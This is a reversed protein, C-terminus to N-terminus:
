QGPCTVVRGSAQGLGANRASHSAATPSCFVVRKRTAIKFRVASPAAWRRSGDDVIVVQVADMGVTQAVWQNLTEGLHEESNYVPISPYKLFDSVRAGGAESFAEGGDRMADLAWAQRCDECLLM